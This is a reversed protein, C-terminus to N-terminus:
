LALLRKVLAGPDPAAALAGIMAVADAGAALVEGATAETIGGIAVIPLSVAARVARLEAMSRTALADRKSATAFMPGYGIYDAGAAAAARAEEVSHTSVGLVIPRRAAGRAAALPLDNQGLHVGDAGAIAAVDLRDNVVIRTCGRRARTVVARAAAVHAAGPAAKCRLQLWPLRLEVLADVLALARSLESAVPVDVIPYLRGFSSRTLLPSESATAV